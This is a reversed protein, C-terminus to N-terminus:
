SAACMSCLVALMAQQAQLQCELLWHVYVQQESPVADVCHVCMFLVTVLLLQKAQSFGGLKRRRALCSERSLSRSPGTRQLLGPEGLRSPCGSSTPFPRALFPLVSLIRAYLHWQRMARQPMRGVYALWNNSYDRSSNLFTVNLWRGLPTPPRWWNRVRATRCSRSNRRCGHCNAKRRPM